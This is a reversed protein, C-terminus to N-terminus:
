EVAQKKIENRWLWDEVLWVAISHLFGGGGWHLFQLFTYCICGCGEGMIGYSDLAWEIVSPVCSSFNDNDLWITLVLDSNISWSPDCKPVATEESLAFEFGCWGSYWTCCWSWYSGCTISWEQVGTGLIKQYHCICLLQVRSYLDCICWWTLIDKFETWTIVM